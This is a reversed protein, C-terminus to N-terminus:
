QAENNTIFSFLKIVNAGSQGAADVAVELTGADVALRAVDGVVEDAAELVVGGEDEAAGHVREAALV